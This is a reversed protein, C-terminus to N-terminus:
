LFENKTKYTEFYSKSLKGNKNIIDSIFLNGDVLMQAYDGMEDFLKNCNCPDNIMVNYINSSKIKELCNTFNLMYHRIKFIVEYADYLTINSEDDNINFVDSLKEIITTSSLRNESKYLTIDPFLYLLYNGLIERALNFLFIDELSTEKCKLEKYNEKFKNKITEYKSSLDELSVDIDISVDEILENIYKNLKTTGFNIINRKDDILIDLSSISELIPKLDNRYIIVNDKRSYVQSFISLFEKYSDFKGSNSDLSNSLLVKLPRIFDIDEESNIIDLYNSFFNTSSPDIIYASSKPTISISSNNKPLSDEFVNKYGIQIIKEFSISHKQEKTRNKFEHEIVKKLYENLTYILVNELELKLETEKKIGTNFDLKYGRKLFINESLSKWKEYYDLDYYDKELENNVFLLLDYAMKIEKTYADLSYLYEPNITKVNYYNNKFILSNKRKNTYMMIKNQKRFYDEIVVTQIGNNLWSLPHSNNFTKTSLDDSEFIRNDFKNGSLLFKYKEDPMFINSHKDKILSCHYLISNKEDKPAYFYNGYKIYQTIGNFKYTSLNNILNEKKLIKGFNKSEFEYPNSYNTMKSTYNKLPLFFDINKSNDEYLLSLLLETRNKYNTSSFIQMIEKETIRGEYLLYLITILHTKTINTLTSYANINKLNIIDVLRNLLTDTTIETFDLGLKEALKKVDDTLINIEGDIVNGNIEDTIEPAKNNHLLNYRLYSDSIYNGNLYFAM